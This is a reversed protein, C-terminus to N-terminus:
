APAGGGAEAPVLARLDERTDLRSGFVLYVLSASGTRSLGRQANRGLVESKPVCLLNGQEDQQLSAYLSMDMREYIVKLQINAPITKGKEALAKRFRERLESSFRHPPIPAKRIPMAYFRTAPHTARGAIAVPLGRAKTQMADATLGSIKGAPSHPIPLRGAKGSLPTVPWALLNVQMNGFGVGHIVTHDAEFVPAEIAAPEFAFAAGGGLRASSTIMEPQRVGCGREQLSRIPDLSVQPPEAELSVAVPECPLATLYATEHCALELDSRNINVDRFLLKLASELERKAKGALSDPRNVQGDGHDRSGSM